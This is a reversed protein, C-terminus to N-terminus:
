NIGEKRSKVISSIENDIDMKRKELEKIKKIDESKINNEKFKNKRFLLNLLYIILALGAAGIFIYLIIELRITVGFIILDVLFTNLILGVM